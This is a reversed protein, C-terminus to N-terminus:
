GSLLGGARGVKMRGSGTLHQRVWGLTVGTQTVARDGAAGLASM